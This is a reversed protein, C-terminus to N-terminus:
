VPTPIRFVASRLMEVTSSGTSILRGPTFWTCISSRVPIVKALARFAKRRWSGSTMRTPSIRSKSVPDMATLAACVPWRTSEVRCVLSAGWVRVRRTSMPTWGKATAVATLTIMPWRSARRSQGWQLAGTSM